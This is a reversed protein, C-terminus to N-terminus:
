SASICYSSEHMFILNLKFFIHAPVNIISHYVFLQNMVVSLVLIYLITGPVLNSYHKCGQVSYM